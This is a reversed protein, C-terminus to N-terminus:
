WGSTNRQSCGANMWCDMWVCCCLVCCRVCTSGGWWVSVPNTCYASLNCLHWRFLTSFVQRGVLVKIWCKWLTPMQVVAASSQQTVRFPVWCDLFSILVVKRPRFMGKVICCPCACWVSARGFVFVWHAAILAWLFNSPTHGRVVLLLHWM